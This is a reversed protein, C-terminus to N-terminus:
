TGFPTIMSRHVGASPSARVSRGAVSCGSAGNLSLSSTTLPRASAGANGSGPSPVPSWTRAAAVNRVPTWGFFVSPGSMRAPVDISWIAAPTSPLSVTSLERSSAMSGLSSIPAQSAPQLQAYALVSDHRLGVLGSGISFWGRATNSRSNPSVSLVVGSARSARIRSSRLMRSESACSTASKWRTSPGPSRVLTVCYRSAMRSMSRRMWNASACLWRSSGSSARGLPPMGSVNSSCARIIISRWTSANWASRVRTMVNMIDLSTLGRVYGSSPM